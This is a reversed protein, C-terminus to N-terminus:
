PIDSEAASFTRMTWASSLEADVVDLGAERARVGLLRLEEPQEGPDLQLGRLDAGEPHGTAPADRGLVIVASFLSAAHKAGTQVSTPFVQDSWRSLTVLTVRSSFRPIIM